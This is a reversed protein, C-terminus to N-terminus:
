STVEAGTSLSHAKSIFTGIFCAIFFVPLTFTRRSSILVIVHDNSFLQCKCFRRCHWTQRKWRCVCVPYRVLVHHGGLFPGGRTRARIVRLACAALCSLHWCMLVKLPCYTCYLERESAYGTQSIAFDRMTTCIIARSKECETAFNVACADLWIVPSHARSAQNAM